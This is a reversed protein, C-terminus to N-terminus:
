LHRGGRLNALASELTRLPASTTIAEIATEMAEQYLDPEIPFDQHRDGRPEFSINAQLIRITLITRLRITNLAENM